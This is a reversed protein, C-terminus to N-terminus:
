VVGVRQANGVSKIQKFQPKVSYEHCRPAFVLSDRTRRLATMQASLFGQGM